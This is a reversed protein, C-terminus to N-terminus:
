RAVVKLFFPIVDLMPGADTAEFDILVTGMLAIKKPPSKPPKGHIAQHFVGEIMDVPEKM